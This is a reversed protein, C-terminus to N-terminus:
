RTIIAGAIIGFITWLLTKKTAKRKQEGVARKWADTENSKAEFAVARQHDAISDVRIAQRLDIVEHEKAKLGVIATQYRRIASQGKLASDAAARAEQETLCVWHTTDRCQGFSALPLLLFPLPKLTREGM